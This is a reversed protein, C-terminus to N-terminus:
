HHLQVWGRKSLPTKSPVAHQAMIRDMYTKYPEESRVNKKGPLVRTVELLNENQSGAIIGVPNEVGYEQCILCAAAMMAENGRNIPLDHGGIRVRQENVEIEGILLPLKDIPVAGALLLM